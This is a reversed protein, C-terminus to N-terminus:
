DRTLRVEGVTMGDVTGEELRELSTAFMKHRNTEWM